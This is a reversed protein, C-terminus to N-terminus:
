FLTGITFQFTETEDTDESRLPYALSFRMAGLPTLFTAGLGASARLEGFRFDGIGDFVMGVDVFLGFRGSKPPATPDDALFNPILFENQVSVRLDGGTPLLLGNSAAYSPGLYSDRFGRVSDAGGGYLKRDPPVAATAGYAAIMAVNANVGYTFGWPLPLYRLESLRLGWWEVDGPVVALDASVSRLVGRDAFIARNRTDYSWGGSLIVSDFILGATIQGFGYNILYPDGHNPNTVFAYVAPSSTFVSVAVDSRQWTVGATFSSYESLPWRFAASLGYNDRSFTELDRGLADATTYYVSLTRSVGDITWYPETFSFSLSQSYSRSQLQLAVRNGTGLFNSHTVSFDLFAGSSTGGFGVGASFNGPSREKIKFDVDVQDETGEVRVVEHDVDEVFPLRAIRLRTRDVQRNSLWTGEMQRAERRFVEDHSKTDTLFNLRRVHARAGPEVLFTISVQKSAQDLEPFPTVEAFAFGEVGLRTKIFEGTANVRAMSFQAGDRALILQRLESEPVPLDGVLKTDKITYVEGEHIGITIFVGKRDGSVSVQTSEIRFDAYGRDMYFSRLSELDAGLKERAYRDGETIWNFWGPTALEFRGVLQEDTFSENGVVNIQRIGSIEGEKITIAIRVQNVGVEEVDADIKAGYRGRSHYQRVLEQTVQDLVSRDFIRGEALGSRVLVRELDETKIEKNGSISFSEIAPREDVVIVLDDGERRFEVDRFFGSRYVARLAAALKTSDVQEGPQLPLYNFLTGESIRTLGEARIGAIRFSPDAEALASTALAAAFLAIM